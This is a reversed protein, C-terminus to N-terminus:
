DLLFWSEFWDVELMLSAIFAIIGLSGFIYMAIMIHLVEAIVIAGFKIIMSISVAFGLATARIHTPYYELFYLGAGMGTISIFMRSLFLLTIGIIRNFEFDIFVLLYTPISYLFLSVNITLSRGHDVLFYAIIIGPIESFTTLLMEWYLEHHLHFITDLKAFYRVSVFIVGYYCCQYIIYVCLLLMSNMPKIDPEDINYTFLSLINGRKKTDIHTQDPPLLNGNPLSKGNIDSIKQLIKLCEEQQGATILYHASEPMKWIVGVAAIWLPITSIKVYWRWNLYTLTLWAVVISIMLGFTWFAQCLILIKGRNKTPLFEAFLTIAVVGCKMFFGVFFRAM